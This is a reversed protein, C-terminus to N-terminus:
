YNYIKSYVFYSKKYKDLYNKTETVPIDVIEGNSNYNGLILWSRVNKLGWNYASLANTEIGDFLDLLYRLYYAGIQINVDADFLDEYTIEIGIKQAVEYATSPLLQMLGVAGANSITSINYNSEIDIVSALMAPNVNYMESYKLIQYKYNQPYEYNTYAWGLISIFFIGVLFLVSIKRM